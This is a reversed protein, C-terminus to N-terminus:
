WWSVLTTLLRELTNQLLGLDAEWFLWVRDPFADSGVLLVLLDLFGRWAGLPGLDAALNHVWLSQSNALLPKLHSVIEDNDQSDQALLFDLRISRRRLYQPLTSAISLFSVLTAVPITVAAFVFFNVVILLSSRPSMVPVFVFVLALVAVPTSTVSSVILVFVIPWPLRVVVVVMVVPGM